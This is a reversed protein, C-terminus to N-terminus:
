GSIYGKPIQFLWKGEELARWIHKWTKTVLLRVGPSISVQGTGRNEEAELSFLFHVLQRCLELVLPELRGIRWPGRNLTESTIQGVTGLIQQLLVKSVSYIGSTEMGMERDVRNAMLPQQVTRESNANSNLPTMVELSASQAGSLGNLLQQLDGCAPPSCIANSTPPPVGQRLVQWASEGCLAQLFPVMQDLCDRVCPVWVMNGQACGGANAVLMGLVHNVITPRPAM